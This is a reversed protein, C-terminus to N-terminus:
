LVPILGQTLSHGPAWEGAKAGSSLCPCSFPVDGLQLGLFTEATNPLISAM